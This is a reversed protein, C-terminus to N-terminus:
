KGNNGGHIIRIQEPREVVIEPRGKYEGIKGTVRIMKNMYFREPQDPFRFFRNAFIVLSLYRTFNRHFNLFCANGSNFSRVIKGQVSVRRGIFKRASEWSILGKDGVPVPNSKLFSEAIHDPRIELLLDRPLPRYGNLSLTTQLLETDLYDMWNLLEFLQPELTAEPIRPKANGGLIVGWKGHAMGILFVPDAGTENQGKPRYGASLLRTKLDQPSLQHAWKYLTKLANVMETRDIGKLVWKGLRLQYTGSYLRLVPIMLHKLRLIWRVESMGDDQWLGRKLSRAEKEWGQFKQKKLADFPYKTYAGAYGRLLLQEQLFTGDKLYLYALVRGYNGRKDEDFSDYELRVQKGLCLEKIFRSAEESFFQVPLGPHNKEPTDVGIFRIVGLGELTLTDGDAVAICKHFDRDLSLRKLLADTVPAWETAPPAAACPISSFLAWFVSLYFPLRNLHKKIM